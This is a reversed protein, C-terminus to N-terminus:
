SERTMLMQCQCARQGGVVNPQGASLIEQKKLFVAAISYESRDFKREQVYNRKKEEVHSLYSKASDGHLLVLLVYHATSIVGSPSKAIRWDLSNVSNLVRNQTRM